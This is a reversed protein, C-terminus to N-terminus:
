SEAKRPDGSSHKKVPPSKVGLTWKAFDASTELKRLQLFPHVGRAELPAASCGGRVPCLVGGAAQGM